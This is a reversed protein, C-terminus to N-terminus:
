QQHTPTLRFFRASHRVQGATSTGSLTEETPGGRDSAEITLDAELIANHRQPLELSASVIVPRRDGDPLLMPNSTQHGLAPSALGLSLALLSLTILIHRRM